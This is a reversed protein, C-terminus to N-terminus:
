PPNGDDITFDILNASDLDPLDNCDFVVELEFNNATQNVETVNCPVCPTNCDATIPYSTFEALTCGSLLTLKNLIDSYSYTLADGTADVGGAFTLTLTVNTGDGIATLSDPAVGATDLTFDGLTVTLPDVGAGTNPIRVEVINVAGGISVCDALCVAPVVPEEAACCYELFYTGSSKILIESQVLQGTPCDSYLETFLSLQDCSDCCMVPIDPIKDTRCEDSQGDYVRWVRVRDGAPLRGIIRIPTGAVVFNPSRTNAGPWFLVNNNMNVAM